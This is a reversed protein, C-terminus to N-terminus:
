TSFACRQAIDVASLSYGIGGIVAKEEGLGSTM